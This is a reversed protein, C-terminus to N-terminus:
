SRAAAKRATPCRESLNALDGALTAEGGVTLGGAVQLHVEFGQREAQVALRVALFDRDDAVLLEDDLVVGTSGDEVSTTM